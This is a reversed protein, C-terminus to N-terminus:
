DEQAYLREFDTRWKRVDEPTLVSREEESSSSTSSTSSPPSSTFLFPPFPIGGRGRGGRDAPGGELAAAKKAATPDFGLDKKTKKPVEPVVHAPVMWIGFGHSNCFGELEQSSPLRSYQLLLLCCDTRVSIRTMKRNHQTTNHQIYQTNGHM